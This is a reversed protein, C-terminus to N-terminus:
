GESFDITAPRKRFGNTKFGLYVIGAAFWVGGVIKAVINLNLWIWGCFAFGFLPLFVDGLLHVHRGAPRKIGFAWFATFNVGTFAIFAGFNLLEAANEYGRGHVALLMGGVFAIIGIIWINYDPTNRKAHLYGFVARPLVTDRGM